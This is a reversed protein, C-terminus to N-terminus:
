TESPPKKDKRRMSFFRRSKAKEEETKEKKKLDKMWENQLLCRPCFSPAMFYRTVLLGASFGVFGSLLLWLTQM